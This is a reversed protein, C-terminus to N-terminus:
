RAHSEGLTAAARVIARKPDADTALMTEDCSELDYRHVDWGGGEIPILSLQLQTLLRLADGDDILPNWLDHQDQDNDSLLWLTDSSNKWVATKRGIAKAARELLERDTPM